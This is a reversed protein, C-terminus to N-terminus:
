RRCRLPTVGTLVVVTGNTGPVQLSFLHESHKACFGKEIVSQEELEAVAANVRQIDEKPCAFYTTNEAIADAWIGVQIGRCQLEALLRKADDDLPLGHEDALSTPFAFFTWPCDGARWYADADFLKDVDISGVVM